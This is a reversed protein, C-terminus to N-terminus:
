SSSTSQVLELLHGALHTGASDVDADTFMETKSATSSHAQGAIISGETVYM